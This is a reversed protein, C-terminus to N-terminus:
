RRRLVQVRQLREEFTLAGSGAGGGGEAAGGDAPDPSATSGEAADTDMADREAGGEQYEQFAVAGPSNGGLRGYTRALSRRRKDAGRGAGSSHGARQESLPSATLASSTRASRAPGQTPPANQPLGRGGASRHELRLRGRSSPM